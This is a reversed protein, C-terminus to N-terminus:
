YSEMSIILKIIEYNEENLQEAIDFHDVEKVVILETKCGLGKLKRHFMDSQDVFAPSENEGVIVFFLVDQLASFPQFLPSLKRATPVDLKLADNARTKTLPILDYIGSLFFVGKLIGNSEELTTNLPPQFLSAVLQAGGSHGCIYISRSGTNKAYEICKVFARNIQDQIQLLTTEPCLTYGFVIVKFNNKYLPEVIYSSVEKGLEQWYDGGHVYILIPSDTQQALQRLPKTPSRELHTRVDEVVEETLVTTRGTSKGKCVSGHEHFRSVIRRIHRCLVDDDLEINQFHTQYEEVCLRVSYNWNGGIDKHGNRFYAELIFKDQEVTFPM